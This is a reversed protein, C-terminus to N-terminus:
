RDPLARDDIEDSRVLCVEAAAGCRVEDAAGVLLVGVAVRDGARRDLCRGPQDHNPSCQVAGNGGLEGQWLNVGADLDDVHRAVVM